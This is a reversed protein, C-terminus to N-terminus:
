FRSLNMIRRRSLERSRGAWFLSENNLVRNLALKVPKCNQRGDQYLSIKMTVLYAAFFFCCWWFFRQERHCVFTLIHENRKSHSQARLHVKIEFYHFKNEDFYAIPSLHLFFFMWLTLTLCLYIRYYISKM